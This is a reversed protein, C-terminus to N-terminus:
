VELGGRCEGLYPSGFGTGRILPLGGGEVSNHQPEVRRHLHMTARQMPVVGFHATLLIEPRLM